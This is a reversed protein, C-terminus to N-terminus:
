RSRVFPDSAVQHAGELKTAQQGDGSEHSFPDLPQRGLAQEATRDHRHRANAQAREAAAEIRRGLDSRPEGQADACGEAGNESAGVVAALQAAAAGLPDSLWGM